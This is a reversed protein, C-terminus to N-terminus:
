GMLGRDSLRNPRERALRVGIATGGTKLVQCYIVRAPWSGVGRSSEVVVRENQGWMKQALIRAGFLSVNETTAQESLGLRDLSAVRVPIATAYRREMRGIEPKM